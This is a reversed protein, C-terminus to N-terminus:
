KASNLLKKFKQFISGRRVYVYSLRLYLVLNQSEYFVLFCNAETGLCVFKQGYDLLMTVSNLYICILSVFYNFCSIIVNGFVLLYM